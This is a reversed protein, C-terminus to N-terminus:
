KLQLLKVQINTQKAIAQTSVLFKVQEKPPMSKCLCLISQVPLNPLPFSPEEYVTYFTPLWGELEGGEIELDGGETMLKNNLEPEDNALKNCPNSASAGCNQVQNEHLNSPGAGSDDVTPVVIVSRAKLTRWPGNILHLPLQETDEPPNKM